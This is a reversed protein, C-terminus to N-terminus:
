AIINIEVVHEQASLIKLVDEQSIEKNKTLRFEVTARNEKINSSLSAESLAAGMNEVVKKFAEIDPTATDVSVKLLLNEGDIRLAKEIKEMTVLVFLTLVTVVLSGLYLGAGAMMGIISTQWICAATTMGQVGGKSRVIAGAGLFGIGTLVQAAVRGPDGNLMNPYAQPLWISIVVACASGLCILTFTRVGADHRSIQRETGIALGLLLAFLVRIITTSVNIENDCLLASLYDVM